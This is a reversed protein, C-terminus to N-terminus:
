NNDKKLKDEWAERTFQTRTKDDKECQKDVNKVLHTPQLMSIPTTKKNKM